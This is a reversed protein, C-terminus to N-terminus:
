PKQHNERWSIDFFTICEIDNSKEHNKSFDDILFSNVTQGNLLNVSSFGHFM